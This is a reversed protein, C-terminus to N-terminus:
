LKEVHEEAQQMVLIMETEVKYRALAFEDDSTKSPIEIPKGFVVCTKSCLHPLIFNDWSNFVTKHQVDFCVPVIPIQAKQAAYIIGEQIKYKPGRPGDPTFVITNGKKALIIMQVLARVAGKSSSGRIPKHGFASATQAILEGDRSQSVMVHLPHGKMSFMMGLFYILYSIRNHWVAFIVPKNEVFIRKKIWEENLITVKQTSGILYLTSVAIWVLIKDTLKSILKTM